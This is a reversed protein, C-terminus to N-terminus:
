HYCFIDISHVKHKLVIIITQNLTPEVAIQGSDILEWKTLDAAETPQGIM